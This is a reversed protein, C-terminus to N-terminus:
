VQINPYTKNNQDFIDSSQFLQIGQGRRGFARSSMHNVVNIDRMGSTRFHTKSHQPVEINQSSQNVGEGAEFFFFLSIFWEKHNPHNLYAGAALLKEM